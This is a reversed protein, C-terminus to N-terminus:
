DPCRVIVLRELLVQLFADIDRAAHEPSVEYRDTLMAVLEDRRCAGQKLKEFLEVATSSSLRHFARDDTILFVEPGVARHALQPHLTYRARPDPDHL